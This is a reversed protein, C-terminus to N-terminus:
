CAPLGQKMQQTAVAPDFCEPDFPGTWELYEEHQEHDPNLIAEVFEVFGWVGGIDEPPCARAGDICRPYRIRPEAETVKEMKVTHQWGDGYDYEYNLKMKSGYQSVLDSVRVGAYSTEGLDDFAPDMFQPDAYRKDGIKFCHLHSNTWGMATQILEHLKELTLDQTEVRRWIAPRTEKLTIKFRYVTAAIGAQRDSSSSPDVRM